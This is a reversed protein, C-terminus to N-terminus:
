PGAIYNASMHKKPKQPAAKIKNKETVNRKRAAEEANFALPIKKRSAYNFVTDLLDLYAQKSGQKPMLHKFKKIQKKMKEPDFGDAWVLKSLATVFHNNTAFPVGIKHCFMIIDGVINAHTPDGLRYTGNKYAKNHNGSGASDGALMSICASLHIGTEKHYQDVVNYASIGTRGYSTHWDQMDWFRVGKVIVHMPLDPGEVYKIPLRLKKATEFRHHGDKIEFKTGRRVVYIPYNDLFGYNKMSFELEQTRKVDRNFPSLYFLGYNNTELIKRSM